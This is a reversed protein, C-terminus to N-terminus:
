KDYIKLTKTIIDAYSFSKVMKNVDDVEVLFVCNYLKKIIGPYTEIKNRGLDYEFIVRKNLHKSLIKRITTTDCIGKDLIDLM